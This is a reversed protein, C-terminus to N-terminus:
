LKLAFNYLSMVDADLYSGFFSLGYRAQGAPCPNMGNQCHVQGMHSLVSTVYWRGNILQFNPGGSAGGTTYCSFGVDWKGYGYQSYKQIPSACHWPRCSTTSCGAWGGEGPYGLHYVNSTPANYAFGYTGAVDGANRGAANRNLVVFAYDQGYYGGGSTGTTNYYPASYWSTTTAANRGTFTGFPRSTGNVGPAFTFTNNSVGNPIGERVCHAATMVINAAVLTGTCYSDRWSNTPRNYTRFFLRGVPNIPNAAGYSTNSWPLELGAFSSRARSSGSPRGILSEVGRAGLRSRSGEVVGPAGGPARRSTAAPKARKVAPLKLARASRLRKPTWHRTIEAASRRETHASSATGAPTDAAAVGTVAGLLGATVAVATISRRKRHM